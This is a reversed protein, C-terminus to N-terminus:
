LVYTKRTQSSNGIKHNHLPHADNQMHRSASPNCMTPQIVQNLKDDKHVYKYSHYLNEFNTGLPLSLSHFVDAFQAAALAPQICHSAHEADGSPRQLPFRGM